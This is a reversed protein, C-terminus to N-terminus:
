TRAGAVDLPLRSLLAMGGHGPFRGWGLADGRGMLRGDGDLDMGSVRGENGPLHFVHRYDIGTEGEALRGVLAALALGHLDHDFGTLLLIDPRVARIVELVTVIEAALVERQLDHLLQGAGTRTLDPNYTAVRLTGAAAPVASAFMLLLALARLM